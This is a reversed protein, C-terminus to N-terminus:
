SHTVVHALKEKFEGLDHPSIQLLSAISELVHEAHKIADRARGEDVSIYGHELPSSNRIQALTRLPEDINLGGHLSELVKAGDFLGIREPLRGGLAERLTERAELPLTEWNPKWPCLRPELKMIAVQVAVEAARYSLLAAETHKGEVVRRKANELADIALLFASTADLKNILKEFTEPNSNIAKMLNFAQTLRRCLSSLNLITQALATLEGDEILVQSASRLEEIITSADEYNFLDWLYLAECARKIFGAKGHHPLLHASLGYALPYAGRRILELVRNAVVDVYTKSKRRIEMAESIVKGSSDRRQGGVYNLEVDVGALKTLAAYVLAASMPKTGGTFDVIVREVGAKAVEDLALSAKRLASDIDEPEEVEFTRVELNKRSCYEKVENAVCLPDVQQGPFPRGYILCVLSVERETEDIVKKLPDLTTGVTM